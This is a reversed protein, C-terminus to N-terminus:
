KLSTVTSDIQHNVDVRIKKGGRNTIIGYSVTNFQRLKTMIFAENSVVIRGSFVLHDVRNYLEVPFGQGGVGYKMLINM